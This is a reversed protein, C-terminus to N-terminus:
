LNPNNNRESQTVPFYDWATAPLHWNGTRRQDIMRIGTHLLEKDREELIIAETITGTLAPIGYAARVENVLTLADSTITEGNVEAEALMLNNEQWSIINLNADPGLSSRWFTSGNTEAEDTLENPDSVEEIALRNAETPEAAIYDAFRQNVSFQTRSPGAQAYYNQQSELSHISQFPADGSQLGDELYPVAAAFENQFVHIRGILSNVVREEYASPASALAAELFTKANDYLTAAPIPASNDIPAAGGQGLEVGFYSAYAARTLGAYLNGIYTARTELAADTFTIADVKQLLDDALFRAQGLTNYPGDVSNNDFQIDGEDIDGFTPFTADSVTDPEFEWADSFGDAIVSLADHNINFRGIVGDIVFPIQDEANLNEQPVLDIPDDVDQVYDECSVAAFLVVVLTLLLKNLKM